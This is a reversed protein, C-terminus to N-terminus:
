EKLVLSRYILNVKFNNSNAFLEWLTDAFALLWKPNDLAMRWQSFRRTAVGIAYSLNWKVKLMKVHRCACLAEIAREIAREIVDRSKLEVLLRDVDLLSAYSILNGLARVLYSKIKDSDSRCTNAVTEILRLWQGVRFEETFATGLKEGNEIM